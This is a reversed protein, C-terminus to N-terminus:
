RFPDSILQQGLERQELLGNSGQPNHDSGNVVGLTIHIGDGGNDHVKNTRITNFSAMPETPSTRIRIGGGANHDIENEVITNRSADTTFVGYGTNNRITNSRVESDTVEEGLIIGNEHNTVTNDRLTVRSSLAIIIGATRALRNGTITNDEVDGEAGERIDIGIVGERLPERITNDDISAFTQPGFLTIAENDFREITNDTIDAQGGSVFIGGGTDFTPHNDHIDKIIIL